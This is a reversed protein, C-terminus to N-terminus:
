HNAKAVSYIDAGYEGPPTLIGLSLSEVGVIFLAENNHVIKSIEGGETQIFGLYGPNEIYVGATKSSINKKLDELNLQGYKPSYDILRIDALHGCYNGIVSM